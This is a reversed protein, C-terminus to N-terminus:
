PYKWGGPCGESIRVHLRGKTDTPSKNWSVQLYWLRLISLDRKYPLATNACM